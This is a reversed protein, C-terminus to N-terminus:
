TLHSNYDGILVGRTVTNSGLDVLENDRLAANMFSVHARHLVTNQFWLKPRESQINVLNFKIFEVDKLWSDGVLEGRFSLREFAAHDELAVSGNEGAVPVAPNTPNRYGFEDLETIDDVCDGDVDAPNAVLYKEVRYKDTALPALSDSLTTTGSQGRTVSVPVNVVTGSGRDHKVYLVFYDDETSSVTIPVSTVAIETPTPAVWGNDCPGPTQAGAGAPALLAAVGLFLTLCLLVLLVDRRLNRALM